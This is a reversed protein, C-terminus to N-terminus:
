RKFVPIQGLSLIALVSTVQLYAAPFVSASAPLLLSSPSPRTASKWWSGLSGTLQPLRIRSDRRGGAKGISRRKMRVPIFGHLDSLLYCSAQNLAVLEMNFFKLLWVTITIECTNM